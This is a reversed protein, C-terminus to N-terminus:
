VSIYLSQYQMCSARMHNKIHLRLFWSPREPLDAALLILSNHISRERIVPKTQEKYAPITKGQQGNVAQLMITASRGKKAIRSIKADKTKDSIPLLPPLVATIFAQESSATATTYLENDSRLFRLQLLVITATSKVPTVPLLLAHQKEGLRVCSAATTSRVCCHQELDMDLAVAQLQIYRAGRPPTLWHQWNYPLSVMVSGDEQRITDIGGVVMVAKQNYRFEKLHKHLAAPSFIRKGRVHSNDERLAAYVAKNLRYVTTEDKAPQWIGNLAVRVAKAAKVAKGFERSSEKSAASMSDPRYQPMRRCYPKGNREYFILDGVHGSLGRTLINSNQAM